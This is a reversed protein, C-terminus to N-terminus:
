VRPSASFEATQKHSRNRTTTRDAGGGGGAEGTRSGHRSAGDPRGRRTSTGPPPWSACSIPGSARGSSSRSLCVCRPSLHPPLTPPRVQYSPSSPHPPPGGGSRSRSRGALGHRLAAPTRHLAVGPRLRGGRPQVGLERRRRPVRDPLPARALDEPDRLVQTHARAACCRRPHSHLDHTHISSPHFTM